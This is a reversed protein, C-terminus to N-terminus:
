KAYKKIKIIPISQKSKNPLFLMSLVDNFTVITKIFFLKRSFHGTFSSWSHLVTLSQIPGHCHFHWKTLSLGHLEFGFVLPNHFSFAVIPFWILYHILTSPIVSYRASFTSTVQCSSFLELVFLVSLLLLFYEFTPSCFIFLLSISCVNKACTKMHSHRILQLLNYSRVRLYSIYPNCSLPLSSINLFEISLPRHLCIPRFLTRSFVLYDLMSIISLTLSRIHIIFTHISSIKLVNQQKFHLRLPFLKWHFFIVQKFILISLSIRPSDSLGLISM